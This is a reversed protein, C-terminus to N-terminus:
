RRKQGTDICAPEGDTASAVLPNTASVAIGCTIGPYKSHTNTASWGSDSLTIRPPTISTSPVFRLAGADSHYRQTTDFFAEQTSVLNRLDSKMATMATREPSHGHTPAMLSLFVIVPGLATAGTRLVLENEGSNAVPTRFTQVMVAVALLMLAMGLILMWKDGTMTCWVGVILPGVAGLLASRRLPSTVSADSRSSYLLFAIAPASVVVLTLIALAIGLTALLADSRLAATDYVAAFALVAILIVATAIWLILYLRRARGGIETTTM